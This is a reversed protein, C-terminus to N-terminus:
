PAVGLARFLDESRYVVGDKIVMRPKRIDSIARAPNGDFLAFDALKGRAISGLDRDARAVRAAGITAIQLVKEPPIGAQVWLELERDLMLGEIGDTGIVLPVGARYLRATMDLMAQFSARYIRDQDGTVPLGGRFAARRLQVPLRDIIGAYSPSAVGPRATYEEEFVGLTPDVVIQKDRLKAIFKAVAPSNPDLEAAHEAPLTMRARTNTKSAEEPLFNLFFFNIHQLEDVGADVFQDAIMGAPVHGSVRMGNEHAVRVIYPVLRPPISSYIKIQIYGAAKYKEIAARAEAETDVLVNTPASYPGRGDMVGALVIRPGIM